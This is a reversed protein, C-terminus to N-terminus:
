RWNNTAQSVAAFIVYGLGSITIANCKMNNM